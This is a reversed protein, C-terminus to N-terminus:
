KPPPPQQQPHPAADLAGDTRLPPPHPTELLTTKGQPGACNLRGNQPGREPREGRQFASLLRPVDATTLDEYYDDGVALMPANICCGACEVEGLTFMGDPTTEGVDVHLHSKCADLIDYAGRLACPTTTCVQVHHRGIPTRNFMTYFSAVEYVQIPPMNLIKAVKQMATLPLWGGNQRQALDLLPIVASRQYNPPYKALVKNVEKMSEESFDFPTSENNEGTNQHTSLASSFAPLSSHFKRRFAVNRVAHAPFVARRAMAGGVKNVAIRLPTAM